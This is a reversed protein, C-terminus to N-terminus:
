EKCSLQNSRSTYLCEKCDGCYILSSPKGKDPDYSIEAWCFHSKQGDSTSALAEVNQLVLDDTKAEKHSSVGIIMACLLAFLFSYKKMNM